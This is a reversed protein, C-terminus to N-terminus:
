REDTDIKRDHKSIETIKIQDLSYGEYKKNKIFQLIYNRQKNRFIMKKFGSLGRYKGGRNGVIVM